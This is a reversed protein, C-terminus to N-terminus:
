QMFEGQKQQGTKIDACRGIGPCLRDASPNILLYKIMRYKIMRDFPCVFSISMAGPLCILIQNNKYINNERSM